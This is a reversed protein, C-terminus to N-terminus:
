EVGMQLETRNDASEPAAWNLYVERVSNDAKNGSQEVEGGFKMWADKIGSMPGKYEAWACKFAPAKWIYYPAEVPFEKAIPIAFIIKMKANEGQWSPCIFELSGAPQQGLKGLTEFLPGISKEAFESIQAPTAEGVVCLFLTEPVTKVAVEAAKPEIKKPSCSLLLLPLLILHRPKM